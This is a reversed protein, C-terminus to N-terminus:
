SNRAKELAEMCAEEDGADLAAQAAELADKAEQSMRASAGDQQQAEAQQGSTARNSMDTELPATDGDKVIENGGEATTSQDSGSSMDSRDMEPAESGSGELPALSGDKSVGDEAEAQLRGRLESLEQECDALAPGALGAIASAAIVATLRRQM